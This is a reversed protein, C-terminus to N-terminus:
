HLWITLSEPGCRTPHIYAVLLGLYADVECLISKYRNQFLHGRRRHRRDFSVAYGSLLRRMISAIPCSGTRLLLHAQNTM